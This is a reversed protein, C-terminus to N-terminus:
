FIDDQYVNVFLKSVNKVKAATKVKFATVWRSLNESVNQVKATIKVKFM